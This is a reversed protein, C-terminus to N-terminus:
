AAKIRGVIKMMHEIHKERDPICEKVIEIEKLNKIWRNLEPFKEEPIMDIGMGEWGRALCFPIMSGVVMDLFGITEGGFFKKETIQNELLMILERVEEIAVDIRKESKVLSRLGILTVQEDVFKAWFRAMAKEYPDQPLIPNNTWTQDIYELILQSEPLIKGNHVLVPVKKYVPNLQLLLPSKVVLYDEDLYDYPVGKLKLAMEVRRSFPSAWSGILKVGEEKEAM